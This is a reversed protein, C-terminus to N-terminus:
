KLLNRADQTEDEDEGFLYKIIPILINISTYEKVSSFNFLIFFVILGIILIDYASRRFSQKIDQSIFLLFIIALILLFNNKTKGPLAKLNAKIENFINTIEEM